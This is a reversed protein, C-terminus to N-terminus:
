CGSEQCARHCALRPPRRGVRGATSTGDTRCAREAPPRRSGAARAPSTRAPDSAPWATARGGPAVSRRPGTATAAPRRGALRRHWQVLCVPGWQPGTIRLGPGPPGPDNSTRRRDLRRATCCSGPRPLRRSGSCTPLFYPGTPPPGSGKATLSPHLPASVQPRNGAPAPCLTCPFRRTPDIREWRAGPSFKVLGHVLVTSDLRVPEVDGCPASGPRSGAGPDSSSGSACRKSCRRISTQAVSSTCRM